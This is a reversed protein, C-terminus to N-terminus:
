TFFLVHKDWYNQTHTHIIEKPTFTLVHPQKRLLFSFFPVRSDTLQGSKKTREYVFIVAAATAADFISMINLSVM